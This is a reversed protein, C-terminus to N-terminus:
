SHCIGTRPTRRISFSDTRSNPAHNSGSGPCSHPLPWASLPSPDSEALRLLEPWFSWAAPNLNSQALAESDAALRLAWVRLAEPGVLATRLTSEDLGGRAVHLGWLARLRHIEPADSTALRRLSARGAESPDLRSDPITAARDALVRRSQRAIWDNPSRQLDALQENGMRTLDAPDRPTPKGSTIKFIRGSSRHIGEQDHCEGTDSWDSVFVGPWLRPPSAKACM